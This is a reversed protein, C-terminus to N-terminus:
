AHMYEEDYQKGGFMFPRALTKEGAKLGRIEAHVRSSQRVLDVYINTIVEPDPIERNQEVKFERLKDTRAEIRNIIRLIEAQAEYMRLCRALIKVLNEATQKENEAM